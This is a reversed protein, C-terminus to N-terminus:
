LFKQMSELAIEGVADIKFCDESIEILLGVKAEQSRYVISTDKTIIGTSAPDQIM